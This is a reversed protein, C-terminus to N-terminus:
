LWIKRQMPEGATKLGFKPKEKERTAAAQFAKARFNWLSKSSQRM